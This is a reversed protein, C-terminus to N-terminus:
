DFCEFRIPDPSHTRTHEHGSTQRPVCVWLVGREGERMEVTNWSYYEWERWEYEPNKSMRKREPSYYKILLCRASVRSWNRKSKRTKGQLKEWALIETWYKQVARQVLILKNVFFIISIIVTIQYRNSVIGFSMSLSSPSWAEVDSTPM